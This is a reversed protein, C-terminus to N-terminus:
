KTITISDSIKIDKAPGQDLVAKRVKTVKYKYKGYTVTANITLKKLSLDVGKVAVEGNSAGAKKTVTYLIGDKLFRRPQDSGTEVVHFDMMCGYHVNFYTTDATLWLISSYASVTGKPVYITAHFALYGDDNFWYEISAPPTKGQFTITKISKLEGLYGVRGTITKPFTISEIRNNSYNAPILPKSSDDPDAIAGTVTYTKKNYTITGPITLKKTSATPKIMCLSVTRRAADTVRYTFIGDTILKDTVTVPIAKLLGSTRTYAIAYASGAKKPNVVGKSSVEFINDDSSLWFVTENSGSSLTGKLTPTEITSLNIDSHSVKLKTSKVVNKAAVVSIKSGLAKKYTSIVSSPVKVTTGKNIADAIGPLPKKNLFTVLKFSYLSKKGLSKISTPLIISGENKMFDNFAQDSITTVGEPVHVFRLHSEDNEDAIMGSPIVKCNKSLFLLEVKKDFVLRDMETVTDPVVIVTAGIHVLSFKCLKTLQYTFGNCSLEKPLNLYSYKKERTIGILQVKGKGAKASSIVQYLLGDKAFVNYEFSETGKSIVTPTVPIDIEYLDSGNYYSISESIVKRYADECGKPVIFVVDSHLFRNSLSVNIEKPLVTGLFEMTRVNPFVYAPINATGIFDDAFILKKVNQYFDQYASNNYYDWSIDLTAVTYEQGNLVVKGPITVEERAETVTLGILSVEKRDENTIVYQYINDSLIVEKEDARATQPLLLFGALFCFLFLIKLSKMKDRRHFIRAIM